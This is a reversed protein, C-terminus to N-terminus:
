TQSTSTQTQSTSARTRSTSAQTQSTTWVKPNPDNKDSYASNQSISKETAQQCNATLLNYAKKDFKDKKDQELTIGDKCNHFEKLKWKGDKNSYNSIVTSKPDKPDKDSTREILYQGGKETNVKIAHYTAFKGLFRLNKQGGHKKPGEHYNLITIMTISVM